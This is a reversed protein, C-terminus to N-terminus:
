EPRNVPVKRSLCKLNNANRCGRLASDEREHHLANLCGATWSKFQTEDQWSVWTPILVLSEASCEIFLAINVQKNTKSVKAQQKINEACAHSAECSHSLVCLQQDVNGSKTGITKLSECTSRRDCPAHMDLEAYSRRATRTAASEGIRNAILASQTVRNIGPGRASKM